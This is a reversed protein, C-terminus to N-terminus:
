PPCPGADYIRITCTSASYTCTLTGPLSGSTCSYGPLGMCGGDFADLTGHDAIGTCSVTGSTLTITVGCNQAPSGISLSACASVSQPGPCSDVVALGSMSKAVCGADPGADGADPEGVTGSDGGNVGSGGGSDPGLLDTNGTTSGACACLSALALAAALRRTM